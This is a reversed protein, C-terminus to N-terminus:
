ETSLPARERQALLRSLIVVHTSIVLPVVFTPLIGFPLARFPTFEQPATIVIRLATLILIAMDALGFASWSMWAWWRSDLRAVPVGTIMLALAGAAAILDGWGISTFQPTMAGRSILVLFVIGVFRLLHPALLLRSDVAQVRARVAPVALAAATALISLLVLLVPPPVRQLLGLQVAVAAVALWAALALILAKM